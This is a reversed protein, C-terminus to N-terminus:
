GLLNDIKQSLAAVEQRLEDVAAELRAIREEQAAAAPSAGSAAEAATVPQSEVAGSLLHAYRAEKTGPQRPLVAVLAPEREMLKQLGALVDTLEDFSHM